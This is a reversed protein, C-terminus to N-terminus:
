AGCFDGVINEPLHSNYITFKNAVLVDGGLEKGLIWYCFTAIHYALYFQCCQAACFSVEFELQLTACSYFLSCIADQVDSCDSCDYM